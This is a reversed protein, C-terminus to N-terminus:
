RVAIRLQEDKEVLRFRAMESAESWEREMREMERLFENLKGKQKM